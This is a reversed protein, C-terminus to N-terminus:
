RPALHREIAVVRPQGSRTTVTHAVLVEGPALHPQDQSIAPAVQEATYARLTDLVCTLVPRHTCLAVPHEKALLRKTHKRAKGPDREFGDETLGGKTRLRAGSLALYPGLTEICRRWPSSLVLEPRWCM